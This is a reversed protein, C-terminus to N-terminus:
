CALAQWACAFTLPLDDQAEDIRLVGDDAWDFCMKRWKTSEIAGGEVADNYANRLTEMPVWVPEDDDAVTRSVYTDWKEESLEDDMEIVKNKLARHLVKNYKSVRGWAFDSGGDSQLNDLASEVLRGNGGISFFVQEVLGESFSVEDVRERVMERVVSRALPPLNRPMFKTGNLSVQTYSPFDNM